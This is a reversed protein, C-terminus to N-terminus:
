EEEFEEFERQAREEDSEEYANQILCEAQKRTLPQEDIWEMEVAKNQFRHLIESDSYHVALDFVIDYIAKVRMIAEEKDYDKLKAKVKKLSGINKITSVAKMVRATNFDDPTLMGKSKLEALELLTPEAFLITMASAKKGSNSTENQTTSDENPVIMKLHQSKTQMFIAEAEPNGKSKDYLEVTKPTQGTYRGIKEYPWGRLALMTVFTRRGTHTSIMEYRPVETVIPKPDGAKHTISKEFGDIGADKAIVKIRRNIADKELSASTAIRPINYKYKDVLISKAIEFILNISISKSTKQQVLKIIDVGQINQTNDSTRSTDSIRQGITCELLFVDKILEDRENDCQYNYLKLVEDDRLAIEDNDSKDTLEEYTISDAEASKYWGYKKGYKTVVVNSLKLFDNITRVTFKDGNPKRYFEVLWDRMEIFTETTILKPDSIVGDSRGKFFENLAKIGRKYNRRTGDTLATDAEVAQNLEAIIDIEMMNDKENNHKDEMDNYIYTKLMQECNAIKDPHSCIFEKFENFRDMMEGLVENTYINNRLDMEHLRLSTIAEGIRENWHDPYVKVGTPFKHQKGNLCVVLYINTPKSQKRSRLNFHAKVEKFFLQEAM